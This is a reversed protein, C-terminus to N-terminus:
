FCMRVDMVHWFMGFSYYIKSLMFRVHRREETRQRQENLFDWFIVQKVSSKEQLLLIEDHEM